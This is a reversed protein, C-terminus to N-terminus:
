LSINTTLCSMGGLPSLPSALESNGMVDNDEYVGWIYESNDM